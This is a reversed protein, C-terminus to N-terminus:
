RMGNAIGHLNEVLSFLVLCVREGGERKDKRKKFWATQRLSPPGRLQINQRFSLRPRCMVPCFQLQTYYVM